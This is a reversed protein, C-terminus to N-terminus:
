HRDATATGAEQGRKLQLLADFADCAGECAQAIEAPTLVAARLAAIFRQWRPGPPTGDGHLYRLPHPSLREAHMRHLVVGGLQSGEIVYCVGWRYSPSGRAGWPRVLGDPAAPAAATVPPVAAPISPHALDAAILAARELKAPAGEGQPGDSFTGLWRELPALWALLLRLHDRYHLLTPEPMALPMSRDLAEHRSATASRLAALPDAKGAEARDVDKLAKLPQNGM